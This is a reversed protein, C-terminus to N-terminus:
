HPVTSGLMDALMRHARSRIMFTAGVTKAQAQAVQEIAQQQLDYQEVVARYHEPLQEIAKKLQQLMESAMAQQSATVSHTFLQSLLDSLSRSLDYATIAQRAGGRKLSKLARIVDILNRRVITEFWSSFAQENEFHTNVITRFVDICSEQLVDDMDFTSRLTAPIRRSLPSRLRECEAELLRLLLAEDSKILQSFDM